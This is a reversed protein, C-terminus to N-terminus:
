QFAPYVDGNLQCMGFALNSDLTETLLHCHNGMFGYAHCIWHYRKNLHRLTNLFTTRDHDTKFVAKM